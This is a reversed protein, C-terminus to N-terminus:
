PIRISSIKLACHEEPTPTPDQITKWYDVFGLLIVPEGVGVVRGDRTQFKLDASTYPDPLDYMLSGPMYVTLYFETEAVIFTMSYYGSMTYMTHPTALVGRLIFPADKNSAYCYDKSTLPMPTRTPSPTFTPNLKDSVDSATRPILGVGTCLMIGALLVTIWGLLKTRAPHPCHAWSSRQISLIGKTILWTGGVLLILIGIIGTVSPIDMHFEVNQESQPIWGVTFGKGQFGGVRDM